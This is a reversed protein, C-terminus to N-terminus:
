SLGEKMKATDTIRDTFLQKCGALKLADLQLDLNQEDTTFRGPM